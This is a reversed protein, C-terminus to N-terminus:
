ADRLMLLGNYLFDTCNIRRLQTGGAGLFSFFYYFYIQGYIVSVIM